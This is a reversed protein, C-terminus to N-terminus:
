PNSKRKLSELRVRILKDDGERVSGRGDTNSTTFYLFGDPGLRVARIRGYKKSFHSLLTVKETSEIKAEYLTEGRLGGFFISGNVFEASAPAWTISEGSHLIPPTMGEKTENGEIVPWGYNGGKVILNLEDLGSLVGSRGHETSWLNGEDDWTIGQPNRHGYSYVATGFPNDKPIVGDETVRLIKGALSNKDQSLDEKTADGTTIYLFKDPGFEMRGGDHYPAGPINSVIAKEEILTDGSLKYRKVTNITGSDKTHTIYVYLLNNQSFKPHLLLGLLGGEGKETVDPVSIKIKEKNKGLRVITGSREPILIDGSPLFAIDWPVDLGRAVVEIDPALSAPKIVEMETSTAVTNNEPIINPPAEQNRYFFLGGSLFALLIFAIIIRKM